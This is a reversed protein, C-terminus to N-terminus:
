SSGVGRIRKRPDVQGIGSPSRRQVAGRDGTLRAPEWAFKHSVWAVVLAAFITGILDPLTADGGRIVVEQITATIIALVSLVGAKLRGDSFRRTILDVIFPLASYVLFQLTTIDVNVNGNTVEM